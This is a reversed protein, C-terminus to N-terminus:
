GKRDLSPQRYPQGGDIKNSKRHTNLKIKNNIDEYDFKYYAFFVTHGVSKFFDYLKYTVREIGGISPDLSNEVFLINM